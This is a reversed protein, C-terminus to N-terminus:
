MAFWTVTVESGPENTVVSSGCFPEIPFPVLNSQVGSALRMTFSRPPFTVDISLVAFHDGQAGVSNCLGVPAPGNDTIHINFNPLSLDNSQEPRITRSFCCRKINNNSQ